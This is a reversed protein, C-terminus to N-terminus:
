NYPLSVDKVIVPYPCKAGTVVNPLNNQIKKAMIPIGKVRDTIASIPCIIAVSM